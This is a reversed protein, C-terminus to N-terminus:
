RLFKKNENNKSTYKGGQRKFEKVKKIKNKDDKEKGSKIRKLNQIM